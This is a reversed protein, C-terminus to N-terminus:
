AGGEEALRALRALVDPFDAAVAAGIAAADPGRAELAYTIHAGAGQPVIRHDVVVVLDGVQTEDTFGEGDRVAVLRCRLPAEGPPTMTFWTGAAFPGDIAIAAIGANWRGWHLIDSMLRWVAAPSANTERSHAVRWVSVEDM